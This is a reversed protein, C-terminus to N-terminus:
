PKQVKKNKHCSPAESLPEFIGWGQMSTDLFHKVGMPCIASYGGGECVCVCVSNNEFRSHM